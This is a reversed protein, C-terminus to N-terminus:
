VKNMAVHSQMPVCCTYPLRKAHLEDLAKSACGAETMKLVTFFISEMRSKGVHACDTGM